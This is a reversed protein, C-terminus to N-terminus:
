FGILMTYASWNVGTNNDVFESVLYESVGQTPTVTFEMDIYGTSDFRKLPSVVNNVAGTGPEDDNNPTPTIIAAVNVLGLGPGSFTPGPTLSIQGAVSYGGFLAVVMTCLGALAIHRILKFSRMLTVM